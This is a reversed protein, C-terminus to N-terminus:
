VSLILCNAFILAFLTSSNSICCSIGCVWNGCKMVLYWWCGSVVSWSFLIKVMVLFVCGLADLDVSFM